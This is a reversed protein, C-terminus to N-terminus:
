EGRRPSEWRRAPRDRSEDRDSRRDFSPRAPGRDPTDNRPRDGFRGEPRGFGGPSPRESFRPRDDPRRPGAYGGRDGYGPRDSPGRDYSRDGFGGPARSGFDGRPREESRRPAAPAESRPRSASLELVTRELKEVRAVLEPLSEAAPRRIASGLLEEALEEPTVGERDARRRLRRRLDTSLRLTVSSADDGSQAAEETEDEMVMEEDVTDEDEDDETDDDDEDDVADDIIATESDNMAPMGGPTDEGALPSPAVPATEGTAPTGNAASAANPQNPMTEDTM